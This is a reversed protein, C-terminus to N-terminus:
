SSAPKFRDPHAAQCEPTALAAAEIRAITPFKAPDVEFRRAAYCQPILCLDAITITDGFSFKGATSRVLEEYATLGRLNWDHNWRLQVAKEASHREYVNPNQLPQVGSNIQEALQRVVARAYADKPLLPPTPKTEELWEVIALSEALYRGDDLELVPVYGAPNRARFEPSDPADSMLEIVSFDVRVGKLALAWRVRWSSSSRWFHYLRM